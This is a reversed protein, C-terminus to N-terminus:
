KSLTTMDLKHNHYVSTVRRIFEDVFEDDFESAAGDHAMQLHKLFYLKDTDESYAPFYELMLQEVPLGSDADMGKRYQRDPILHGVACKAGEPGRYLCMEVEDRYGEEDYFKASGRRQEKMRAVIFDAVAQKSVRGALFNKLTVDKSTDAM